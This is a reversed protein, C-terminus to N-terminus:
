VENALLKRIIANLIRRNMKQASNHKMPKSLRNRKLAKMLIQNDSNAYLNRYKIGYWTAYVLHFVFNQASTFPKDEM